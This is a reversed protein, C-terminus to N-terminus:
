YKRSKRMPIGLLNADFGKMIEDFDGPFFRNKPYTENWIASLKEIFRQTTEGQKKAAPGLFLAMVQKDLFPLEKLEKRTLTGYYEQMKALCEAAAAEPDEISSFLPAAKVTFESLSDPYLDFSFRDLLGRSSTILEVFNM